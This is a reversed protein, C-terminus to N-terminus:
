LVDLTNGPFHLADLRRRPTALRLHLWLRSRVNTNGNLCVHSVSSVFREVSSMYRREVCSVYRREVSSMYRREVCSVYSREVCSVYWREVCSVYWREVCSVYRREVCSVYRREVCSVYRREVCSVYWREVCSVYRREVCSVYRREDCSVYRRKVGHCTLFVFITIVNCKGDVFDMLKLVGSLVEIATPVIDEKPLIFRHKKSRLEVMYAYPINAVAYAWDTSTGAAYYMLDKTSGVKYTHGSVEHIAELLLGGVRVLEEFGSVELLDGRILEFRDLVDGIM